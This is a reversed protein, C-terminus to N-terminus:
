QLRYRYINWNSIFYVAHDRYDFGGTIKEPAKALLSVTLNKPEIAFIGDAALGILRGDKAVTIANYVANGFPFAPGVTVERSKPNFRFVKKGAIGYVLGDPATILDTINSAGEVPVTEFVKQKNKPDWLFLHASASTPHSGGGGGTTMGGVLLDNWVALSVVSEDKVIQPYQDVTGKEVDWVSIPGGLKGYGAVSGLYVKGDPGNIMAQPRWGTDTGPFTLLSPNKPDHEVQLPQKPDFGMLPAIGAYAAMLLRDKRLLFSYIEGGGLDGIEEVKHQSEDVRILHIPLIASGYLRGDPGFGVRFVPLHNGAYEFHMEQKAQTKSDTLVLKNRQLTALRGDKLRNLPEPAPAESEKIETAMWGKLRFYRHEVSGYVQGDIGRFVKAQAVLQADGPLIERHEGTSIEYAAINAKSTGIGVYMFGDASGVVYHAYLENPDLRGLDELKGTKPDYRVLKSQPYTAGYLKGDPGFTVGWIYEESEAPRGLDILKGAKVDLKLFHAKPLTGLYMNGDPGAVLNRAGSEGKAPSSFVETKGTVPDVAIVDITNDLYLYSGYVRESGPTPGPGVATAVLGGLGRYKGLLEFTGASQAHLVTAGLCFLLWGTKLPWKM